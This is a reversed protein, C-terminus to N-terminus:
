ASMLCKRSFKGSVVSLWHVDDAQRHFNAIRICTYGDTPSLVSSLHFNRNSVEAVANM